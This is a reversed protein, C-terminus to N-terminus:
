TFPKSNLLSASCPIAFFQSIPWSIVTRYRESSGYSDDKLSFETGTNFGVMNKTRPKKISKLEIAKDKIVCQNKTKLIM